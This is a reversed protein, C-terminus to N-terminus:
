VYLSQTTAIYKLVHHDVRSLKYLCDVFGMGECVNSLEKAITSIKMCAKTFDGVSVGMEDTIRHQLFYKCQQETECLCWEMMDDVLDYMLADDYSIGTYMERSLELTDMRRYAEQIETLRRHLFADKTRPEFIRSDEPVKVDAFVSLFAVLQIESFDAFQRQDMICKAIILPHIEAINSAIKGLHTLAYKVVLRGDTPFDSAESRLVSFKSTEAVDTEAVNTEAVIFGDDVLVRCVLRTQTEIFGHISALQDTEQLYEHELRSLEALNRSDAEIYKYQDQLNCITKECDRRKKNVLTHIRACEDQYRRCVDQPTRLVQISARKQDLTKSLTELLRTQSEVQKNREHQIMSKEAFEHFDSTQGNQLLRLVMAYHIRFKSVLQQPKGCLITKYETLTPLPFLNSCHVVHGVTDIGRRGARGASQTYEHPYLYRERAGDFKTLSTFIATRIPCDLGISFSETAFLVKIYKKSIMLEVIERLIPIMGSHHIGIGKELLGVLTNYEPLELYEQYNPLKRIIQECERSVIYPVKSDDELLNATIESACREVNKRSFVFCIAPLMENEKLFTALNNLIFKRKLFLERSEFIELTKAVQKYGPELFVNKDTQLKVLRNTSARIEQQLAKDKVTKLFSETTAVYAYHTLPVIRHHTYALYVQKKEPGPRTSEVWEAFKHPEDLTASLMIMQVEPPLMLITQEWTQGRHEDNIYHVEDMVVAAAPFPPKTDSSSAEGLFLMNTLIEATMIVVDADPNTKIDGTLLGFRIHPYRNTFEYYKQNSLAKIPTTYFVRKQQAVFHQIAFEASLTKGSGTPAATIVHQGEVIAEIAYKQFDSLEYPFMDFHRQYVSPPPDCNETSRLSAVSLGEFQPSLLSTPFYPESCIKVM